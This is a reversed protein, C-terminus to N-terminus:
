SGSRGPGCQLGPDVGPDQIKSPSREQFRTPEPTSSRLHRMGEGPEGPSPHQPRGFRKWRFSVERREAVTGASESSISAVSDGSIKLRTAVPGYVV